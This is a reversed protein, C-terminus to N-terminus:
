YGLPFWVGRKTVDGMNPIVHEIDLDNIDVNEIIKNIVPLNDEEFVRDKLIIMADDVGYATIGCGLRIGMPMTSSASFNFEFWYRIVKM